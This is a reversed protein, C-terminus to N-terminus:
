REPRVGHVALARVLQDINEDPSHKFFELNQFRGLM